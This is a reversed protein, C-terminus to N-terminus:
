AGLGYGQGGFQLRGLKASICRLKKVFPQFCAGLGLFFPYEVCRGDVASGSDNINEAMLDLFPGLM